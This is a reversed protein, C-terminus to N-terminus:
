IVFRVERFNFVKLEGTREEIQLRGSEDVGLIKGQWIEESENSFKSWIGKRFFNDLYESKLSDIQDNKLQLYRKSLFRFLWAFMLELDQEEELELAISTPNFVDESFNIQNINVGTGVITSSILKGKLSNQLLIGAIKKDGVYIDNPWKIKVEKNTLFHSIFDHIALSVAINLQFQDSAELFDPRLITSCTINKEAESEWFRGIQGRGEYQFSASIVTGEIPKSKAIMDIAYRNTSNVRNLRIHNNGIM